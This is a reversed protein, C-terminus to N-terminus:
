KAFGQIFLDQFRDRRANLAIRANVMGSEIISRGAENGTLRMAIHLPTWTAVTPDLLAAAALPDWAYYIGQNIMEREGALVKSVIAALTGRADHQFRAVFAADLKVKGTADLPVVRIPVKARFVRAAAEPDVYFNWEATTNSTKFAGGDGLNGPVRFAGGMIVIEEVARPDATALALAVDTLPGLALIRVPHAADKLRRTLWVEGRESHKPAPPIDSTLPADSPDRWPKPFNATFQLPTERGEFVDISSRGSAKVLRRANAAGAPVHALGNVAIIAEVPIEPHALLLAIAMEDDSGMDTDIVVPIAARATLALSFALLFRIM